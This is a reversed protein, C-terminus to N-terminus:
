VGACGELLTAARANRYWMEIPHARVYGHGGFAQVGEDAIAMAREAAYTLALCASRTADQKTELEWAARWTMWRMAAIDIHMDAIRFAIVQKRALATGFVVRDKTYPMVYELVGRALGTLVASLGARASAILRQADGGGEGGLRMAAPVLVGDFAVETMQLARLGLTGRPEAVAVGKADRPVIFAAAPDGRSDGVRAGVRAIVLFHSCSAAFPVLAKTGNLMYRGDVLEATTQLRSVDFGFQPEMCAIAAAHFEDGAFLPLLQEKQQPTGQDVIAQVFAMPAALALALTADAAALEELVIANLVPSRGGDEDIQAQVLGTSWLASLTAPEICSARDSPQAAPRMVSAAFEQMASQALKQDESLEFDIM